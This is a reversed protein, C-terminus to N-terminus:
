FPLIIDMVENGYRPRNADTIMGQGGYAIRAEAIKEYSISNDTTIDEPRIIGAVELDRRENSVRVQQKGHIVMNGNPLIQTVVAAVKLEIEEDREIKGKGTNKTASNTDVLTAANVDGPLAHAIKSQLGFLGPIGMDENANKTKESKTELKANDKIDVMVTLIDGVQGARQDKFFSKRGSLWLSNAQQVEVRPAPMPMSVPHYGPQTTPNEIKAMAPDKGVNNLREMTNACATLSLIAVTGLMLKLATVQTM